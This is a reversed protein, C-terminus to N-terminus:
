RGYKSFDSGAAQRYGAPRPRRRARAEGRGPRSAESSRRRARSPSRSRRCTRRAGHAAPHPRAELLEDGLGLEARAGHLREDPGHHRHPLEGRGAAGREPAQRGQHQRHPRRAGAVYPNPSAKSTRTPSRGRSTATRATRTPSAPRAWWASPSTRRRGRRRGACASSAPGTRTSTSSPSTTSSTATCAPRDAGRPRGHRHVQRPPRRLGLEHRRPQPRAARRHPRGLGLGHLALQPGAVGHGVVEQRDPQGLEARGARGLPRGHELLVARGRARRHRRGARAEHDRPLPGPPPAPHRRRHGAGQERRAGVHRHRLARRAPGRGGAEGHLRAQGGPDRGRPARPPLLAPLRPDGHRRGRGPGEPLRRLRHLLDRAHRHAPRGALKQKLQGLSWELQDPFVDGLAAIVVDPSAERLEVAADTGRGGCGIVGVRIRESAGAAFLGGPFATALSALSATKIVDRRTFGATEIGAEDKM